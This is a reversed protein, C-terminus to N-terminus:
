EEELQACLLSLTKAYPPPLGAVWRGIWSAAGYCATFKTLCTSWIDSM